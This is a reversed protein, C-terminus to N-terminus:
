LKGESCSPGGCKGCGAGGCLDDCPDGRAGCVMENLNPVRASVDDVQVALAALAAENEKFQADFDGQNSSLRENTLRRITESQSIIGETADARRQASVSASAAERTVNYAGEVDTERLSTANDELQKTASALADAEKRLSDLSVEARDVRNNTDLVRQDVSNMKTKAGEIDRRFSLGSM